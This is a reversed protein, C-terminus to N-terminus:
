SSILLSFRQLVGEVEDLSFTREFRMSEKGEMFILLTPITFLNFRSGLTSHKQIDMYLFSFTKFKEELSTEIKLKVVKCSVCSSGGFLVIGSFSELISDIEEINEIVQM